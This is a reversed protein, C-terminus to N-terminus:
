YLLDSLEHYAKMMNAHRKEIYSLNWVEIFTTMNLAAVTGNPACADRFRQPIVIRGQGDLTVKEMSAMVFRVLDKKRAGPETQMLKGLFEDWQKSTRVELYPSESMNPILIFTEGKRIKLRDRIERPIILRGKQDLSYLNRENIFNM